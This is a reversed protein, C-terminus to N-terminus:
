VSAGKWKMRWMLGSSIRSRRRSTTGTWPCVPLDASARWNTSQAPLEPRSAAVLESDSSAWEPQTALENDAADRLREQLYGFDRQKELTGDARVVVLGYHNPGEYLEYVCAGSFVRTMEPSYIATTEHFKRPTSEGTTTGYESFFVPVHTNEFWELLRNWGSVQMSSRGVWSWENWQWGCMGGDAVSFFDVAEEPAGGTLYRFEDLFVNRIGSSSVGVPLVRYQQHAGAGAGESKAAAAHLAMYRKVDRVLARVVPAGATAGPSNLVENAVVVGLTNPYVAMRDLTAFYHQVLDPTYSDFPAARNVCQHKTSLGAIVYIGAKALMDMAVDHSKTNDITYVLLTNIGLEQLLPISCSLVELQDDAIPDSPTFRPHERNKERELATIARIYNNQYVARARPTLYTEVTSVRDENRWLYRGRVSIPTIQDQM